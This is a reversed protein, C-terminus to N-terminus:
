YSEKVNEDLAYVEMLARVRLAEKTIHAYTLTAHICM